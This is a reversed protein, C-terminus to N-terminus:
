KLKEGVEDLKTKLFEQMAMLRKQCLAYETSNLKNDKLVEGSIYSNIYKLLEFEDQKELEFLDASFEIPTCSRIENYSGHLDNGINCIIKVLNMGRSNQRNKNTATLAEPLKNLMKEIEVLAKNVNTHASLAKSKNYYKLSNHAGWLSVATIIVNVITMIIDVVGM